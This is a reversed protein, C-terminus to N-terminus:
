GAAGADGKARRLASRLRFWAQMLTKGHESGAQVHGYRDAVYAETIVALGESVSVGPVAQSLLAEYEFPTQELAKPFGSEAGVWLLGRYLERVDLFRETDTITAALPPVAHAGTRRQLRGALGRLFSKLDAGFSGWLSENIEEYGKDAPGKWYRYLARWLFFVIVAVAAVFLTWKLVLFLGEPAHGSQLEEGFDSLDGFQFDEFTQLAGFSQMWRVVVEVLWGIGQALFGIPYGILYLFGTALWGAATNFPKVIQTVLDLSMGSAALAGIVVILLVVSLLLLLWRRAFLDTAKPRAGMGRRLSVFNAIGLGM